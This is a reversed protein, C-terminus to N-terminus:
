ITRANYKRGRHCEQRHLRIDACARCFGGTGATSARRREILPELVQDPFRVLASVAVRQDILREGAELRQRADDLVVASLGLEDDSEVPM